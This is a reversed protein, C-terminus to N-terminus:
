KVKVQRPVNGGAVNITAVYDSAGSPDDVYNFLAIKSLQGREYIAYQPTFENAENGLLDIIQSTNSSGFAEAMVLVSYYVAGITWENFSTQNTPPATSLTLHTSQM